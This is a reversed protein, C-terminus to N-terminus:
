LRQQLKGRSNYHSWSSVTIRPLEAHITLPRAGVIEHHITNASVNARRRIRLCCLIYSTGNRTQTDKTTGIVEHRDIGELFKTDLCGAVRWLESPCGTGLYRDFGARSGVLKMTDCEIIQPVIHQVGAVPKVTCGSRWEFFTSLSLIIKAANETARYELAFSKEEKRIFPLDEAEWTSCQRLNRGKRGTLVGGCWRRYKRQQVSEWKRILRGARDLRGGLQGGKVGTKGVAGAQVGRAKANIM